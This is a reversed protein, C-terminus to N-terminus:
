FTILQDAPYFCAEFKVLLLIHTEFLYVRIGIWFM